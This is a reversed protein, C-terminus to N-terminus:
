PLDSLVSRHCLSSAVCRQRLRAAEDIAVTSILIAVAGESLHRRHPLRIEPDLHLRVLHGVQHDQQLDGPVSVSRLGVGVRIDRPVSAQSGLFREPMVYRELRSLIVTAINTARETPGKDEWPPGM